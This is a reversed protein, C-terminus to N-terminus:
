SVGQTAAEVPGGAVSIAENLAEQQQILITLYAAWSYSKGGISYDPQPNTTIAAINAAINAQATLLNALVTAM